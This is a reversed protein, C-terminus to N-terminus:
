WTSDSVAKWAWSQKHMKWHKGLVYCPTLAHPLFGKHEWFRSWGYCVGWLNRPPIKRVWSLHSLSEMRFEGQKTKKKKLWLCILEELAADDRGEERTVEKIMPPIAQRPHHNRWPSCSAQLVGQTRDILKLKHLSIPSFDRGTKGDTGNRNEAVVAGTGTEQLFWLHLGAVELAPPIFLVRIWRVSFIREGFSSDKWVKEWNSRM